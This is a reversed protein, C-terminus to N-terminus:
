RPIKRLKSLTYPLAGELESPLPARTHKIMKKRCAGFKLFNRRAQTLSM